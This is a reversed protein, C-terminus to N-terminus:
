RNLLYKSVYICWFDYMFIDMAASNAIAGNYVGWYGEVPHIFM